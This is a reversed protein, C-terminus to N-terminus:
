LGGLHRALLVHSSPKAQPSKQRTTECEASEEVEREPNEDPQRGIKGQSDKLKWSRSRSEIQLQQRRECGQDPAVVDQRGRIDPAVGTHNGQGYDASRDDAEGQHQDSRTLRLEPSQSRQGDYLERESGSM